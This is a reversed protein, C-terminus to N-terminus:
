FFPAFIITGLLAVIGIGIAWLGTATAGRRYAFYGVVIGIPALLFPLLFLSLISIILGTIALGNGQAQTEEEGNTEATLPRDEGPGSDEEGKVEKKVGPAIEAATEEDFGIEDIEDAGFENAGTEARKRQEDEFRKDDEAM